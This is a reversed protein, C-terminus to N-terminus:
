SNDPPVEESAGASTVIVEKRKEFADICQQSLSVLNKVAESLDEAGLSSEITDISQRVSDELDLLTLDYQYIANLEETNVKIADFFGAFGYTATRIRDIFQRLKISAAELDGVYEVGKTAIVERQLNSIRQWLGEFHDAITDRLLKDAARRTQREVYGIFGPIKNLIKKFFDQEENVRGLYDSM